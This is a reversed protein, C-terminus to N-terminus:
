QRRTRIGSRSGIRQEGQGIPAIEGNPSSVKWGFKCAHKFVTEGDAGDLHESLRIGGGTNQLVATLMARRVDWPSARLDQRDLAQATGTL